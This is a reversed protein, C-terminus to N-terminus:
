FGEKVWDISDVTEAETNTETRDCEGILDILRQHREWDEIAQAALQANNEDVVPVGDVHEADVRLIRPQHGNNDDANAIADMAADRWWNVLWGIHRYEIERAGSSDLEDFLTQVADTMSRESNQLLDVTDDDQSRALYVGLANVGIMDIFTTIPQGYRNLLENIENRM